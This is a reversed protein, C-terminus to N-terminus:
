RTPELRSLIAFAIHSFLSFNHTHSYKLFTSRIPLENRRQIITADAKPLEGCSPLHMLPGDNGPTSSSQESAQSFTSGSSQRPCFPYLERVVADDFGDANVLSLV